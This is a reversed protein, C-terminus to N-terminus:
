HLENNTKLQDFANKEVTSFRFPSFFIRVHNNIEVFFLLNTAIEFIILFLRCIYHFFHWSEAGKPIDPRAYKRFKWSSCFSSIRHFQTSKQIAIRSWLYNSVMIWISSSAPMDNKADKVVIPTIKEWWGQLTSIVLAYCCM